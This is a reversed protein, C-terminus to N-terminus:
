IITAFIVYAASTSPSSGTVVDYLMFAAPATAHVTAAVFLNGDIATGLATAGNLSGYQALITSTAATVATGISSKWIQRNNIPFVQPKYAATVVSSAASVNCIAYVRDGTQAYALAGATIKLAQGVYLAYGSLAYLREERFLENDAADKYKYFEFMNFAEMRIKLYSAKAEVQSVKQLVRGV